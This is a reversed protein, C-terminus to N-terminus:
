SKRIESKVVLQLCHWVVNVDYDMMKKFKIHNISQSTKRDFQYELLCSTLWHNQFNFCSKTMTNQTAHNTALKDIALVHTRPSIDPNYRLNPLSFTSHLLSLIDVYTKVCQVRSLVAEIIHSVNEFEREIKFLSIYIWDFM